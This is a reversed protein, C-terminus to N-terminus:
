ATKRNTVQQWQRHTTVVLTDGGRDLQGRGGGIRGSMTGLSTSPLANSGRWRRTTASGSSSRHPTPQTHARAASMPLISRAAKSEAGERLTIDGRAQAQALPNEQCYRPMSAAAADVIAGADQESTARM